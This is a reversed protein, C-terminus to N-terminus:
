FSPLLAVINFKAYQNMYLVGVLTKEAFCNHQM